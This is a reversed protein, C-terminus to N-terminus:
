PMRVPRLMSRQLMSNDLKNKQFLLITITKLRVSSYNVTM